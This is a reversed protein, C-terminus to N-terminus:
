MFTTDHIPTPTKIKPQRNTALPWGVVVWLPPRPHGKTGEWAFCIGSGQFRPGSAIPITPHLM